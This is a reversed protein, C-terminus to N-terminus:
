WFRTSRKELWSHFSCEGLHNDRYILDYFNTFNNIGENKQQITKEVQGEVSRLSDVSLYPIHLIYFQDFIHDIAGVEISDRVRKMQERFSEESDNTVLIGIKMRTPYKKFYCQLYGAKRILDQFKQMLEKPNLGIEGLVIGVDPKRTIPTAMYNPLGADAFTKIPHPLQDVHIDLEFPFSPRGLSDAFRSNLDYLILRRAPIGLRRLFSRADEEYTRGLQSSVTQLPPYLDSFMQSSCLLNQIIDIESCATSRDDLSSSSM